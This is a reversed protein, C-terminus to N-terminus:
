YNWMILCKRKREKNNLLREYFKRREIWDSSFKNWSFFILFFTRIQKDFINWQWSNKDPSFEIFINHFFITEQWSTESYIKKNRFIDLYEPFIIPIMWLLNISLFFHASFNSQFIVWTEFFIESQTSWKVFMNKLIEGMLYHFWWRM